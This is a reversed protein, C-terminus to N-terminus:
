RQLCCFWEGTTKSEQCRFGVNADYMVGAYLGRIKPEM